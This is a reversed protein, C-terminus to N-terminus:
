SDEQFLMTVPTYSHLVRNERSHVQNNIRLSNFPPRSNSGIGCHGKHITVRQPGQRGCKPLSESLKIHKHTINKKKKVSFALAPFLTSTLSSDPYRAWNCLSKSSYKPSTLNPLLSFNKLIHYPKIKKRSIIRRMLPVEVEGM